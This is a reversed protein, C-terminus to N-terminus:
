TMFIAIQFFPCIFGYELNNVNELKKKGQVSGDGLLQQESKMVMQLKPLAFIPDAKHKYSSSSSPPFFEQSQM